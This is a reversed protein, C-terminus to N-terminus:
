VTGPIGTKVFFAAGVAGGAAPGVEGGKRSGLLGGSHRSDSDAIRSSALWFARLATAWWALMSKPPRALSQNTAAAPNERKEQLRAAAASVSSERAHKHLEPTTPQRAAIM